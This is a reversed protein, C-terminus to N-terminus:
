KVRGAAKMEQYLKEKADDWSFAEVNEGETARKAEAVEEKTELRSLFDLV